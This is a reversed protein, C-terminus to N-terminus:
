GIREFSGEAGKAFEVFGSGEVFAAAATAFDNFSTLVGEPSQCFEFADSTLFAFLHAGGHEDPEFVGGQKSGPNGGALRLRM